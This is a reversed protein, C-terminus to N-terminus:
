WAKGCVYQGRTWVFGPCAHSHDAAPVDEKFLKGIPLTGMENEQVVDAEVKRGSEVSVTKEAM